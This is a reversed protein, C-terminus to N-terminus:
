GAEAFFRLFKDTVHFCGMAFTSEKLYGDKALRKTESMDPWGVYHSDGPREKEWKKLNSVLKTAKQQKEPGRFKDPRNKRAPM